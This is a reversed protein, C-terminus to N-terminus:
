CFLAGEEPRMDNNSIELPRFFLSSVTTRKRTEEKFGAQKSNKLRPSCELVAVVLVLLRRGRMTM